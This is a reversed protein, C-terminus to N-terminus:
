IANHYFGKFKTFTKYTISKNTSLKSYSIYNMKSTNLSPSTLSHILTLTLLSSTVLILIVMWVGFGESIDVLLDSYSIHILHKHSIIELGYILSKINESLYSILHTTLLSLYSFM